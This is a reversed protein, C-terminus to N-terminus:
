HPPPMGPAAAQPPPASRPLVLLPDVPKARDTPVAAYRVEFHLQPESAGGTEGVLGIQEGQIVFQRMHVNVVGLHAYATVWGEAHKVLVLNGFGPVQDGAYVVEGAAAAVVPAGMPSRLDVGDNRRGQGQSGFGSIVEGRVPWIFRGKALAVIEAPSQSPTTAAALPPAVPPRYPPPTYTAVPPPTTTPTTPPPRYPAPAYTPPVYAPAALPPVYAYARPPPQRAVMPAIRERIPGHDHFGAPLAVKEGSSLRSRGSLDNYDALEGVSVGFRRAVASMTDGSEAVYAKAVPVKLERGPQLAYPAKLHNAEVIVKRTTGLDRAIADVHDHKRVVYQRYMGRAEVVRGGAITRWTPAPPVYVPAPRPPPIYTPAPAVPRPTAAPPPPPLPVTQTLPPLPASSVATPPPATPPPAPPPPVVVTPAPAAPAAAAPQSIPYKPQLLPRSPGAADASAPYNPTTECAALSAAALAFLTARTLAQTM